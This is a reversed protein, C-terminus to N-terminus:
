FLTLRICSVVLDGSESVVLRMGFVVKWADGGCSDGGHVKELTQGGHQGDEAIDSVGADWFVEGLRGLEVVFVVVGVLGVEGGDVADEEEGGGVEVAVYEGNEVGEVTEGIIGEM